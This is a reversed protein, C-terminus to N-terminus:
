GPACHGTPSGPLGTRRARRSEGIPRDLHSPFPVRKGVTDKAFILADAVGSDHLVLTEATRQRNDLRLLIEFGRRRHHGVTFLAAVL